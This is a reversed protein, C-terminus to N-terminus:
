LRGIVQSDEAPRVTARRNQLLRTQQGAGQSPEVDTQVVGHPRRKKKKLPSLSSVDGPAAVRGHKGKKLNRDNTKQKKDNVTENRLESAGTSHCSTRTSYDHLM